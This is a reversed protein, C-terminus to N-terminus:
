YRKKNFGVRRKQTFPLLETFLPIPDLLGSIFPMIDSSILFPDATGPCQSLSQGISGITAVELVIECCTRIFYFVNIFLSNNLYNYVCIIM